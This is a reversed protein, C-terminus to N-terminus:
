KQPGIFPRKSSYSDFGFKNSITGMEKLAMAGGCQRIIKEEGRKAQYYSFPLCLDVSRVYNHFFFLLTTKNPCPHKAGVVALARWIVREM